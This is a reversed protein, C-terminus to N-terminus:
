VMIGSKHCMWSLYWTSLIRFSAQWPMKGLDASPPLSALCSMVLGRAKEGLALGEALSVVDDAEHEHLREQVSGAPQM